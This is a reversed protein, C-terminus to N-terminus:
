KIVEYVYPKSEPLVDKITYADNIKASAEEVNDFDAYLECLVEGKKVYDGIKKKLSIGAGYNISDEKTKRGA